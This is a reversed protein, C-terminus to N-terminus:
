DFLTKSEVVKGLVKISDKKLDYIQVQYEPDYSQPSLTVIRGEQRFRKVTADNDNVMVVAIEGNEVREQSRVILIDGNNIKAANMSDGKVRLAFYEAGDRETFTYGEVHERADRPRGASIRGLIPIEHIPNYIVAGHPLATGTLYDTTVEFLEAFNRVATFAPKQLNNEYRSITSKNLKGGFRENYIETLRDMSYGNSKRLNRLNEGFM